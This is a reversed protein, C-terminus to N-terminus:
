VQLFYGILYLLLLHAPYFIYFFYKLKLGRKGNYWYILPINLLAPLENFMAFVLTVTGAAMEAVRSKRLAYMVAITLVGFEFYDTNLVAALTMGFALVAFRAFFVNAKESAYKKRMLLYAAIGLMACLGLLLSYSTFNLIILHDSGAYYLIHDIFNLAGIVAYNLTIYAASLIGFLAPVILWKKENWRDTITQFGIMVLLGILLTFFVNQYSFDFSKYSFALDFPIESILAFLALRLAYKKRNKTHLFGEILLFCFIPFALRGFMRMVHALSIMFASNANVLPNLLVSAAIHDILMSFVAIFKLTSGSIGKRNQISAIDTNLDLEM